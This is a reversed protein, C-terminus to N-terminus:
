DNSWCITLSRHGTCYRWVYSYLINSPYWTCTCLMARPFCKPQAGCIQAAMIQWVRLDSQIIWLMAAIILLHSGSSTYDCWLASVGMFIFCIQNLLSFIQFCGKHNTTELHWVCPAHTHSAQLQEHPWAPTVCSHIWFLDLIFLVSLMSLHQDVVYLSSM